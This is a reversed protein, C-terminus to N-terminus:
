LSGAAAEGHRVSVRTSYAQPGHGLRRVVQSRGANRRLSEVNASVAGSRVRRKAGGVVGNTTGAVNPGLELCGDSPPRVSAVSAAVAIYQQVSAM